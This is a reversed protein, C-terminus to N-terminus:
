MSAPSGWSAVESKIKPRNFWILTFLPLACVLAGGLIVGLVGLIQFISMMGPPFARTGASGANAANIMIQMMDMAMIYGLYTAPVTYCIRLCAWTLAAMRAWPRLRVCGIGSCLLIIGLVSLIAANTIQFWVYKRAIVVQADLMPNSGPPAIKAMLTQILPGAVGGCSNSLIGLSALVIAITGCVMPWTSPQTPTGMGDNALTSFLRVSPPSSPGESMPDNTM